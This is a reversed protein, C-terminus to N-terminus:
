VFKMYMQSEKTRIFEPSIRMFMWAHKELNRTETKSAYVLRILNSTKCIDKMFYTCNM